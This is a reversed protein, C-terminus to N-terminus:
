DMDMHNDITVMNYFIRVDPTRVGNEDLLTDVEIKSVLMSVLSQKDEFTLENIRNKYEELIISVSNLYLEKNKIQELKSNSLAILKKLEIEEKNIDKLQSEVDQQNILNKRFLTLINNKESTKSILSKELASLESSCSDLDGENYKSKLEGIYAEKNNLIDIIDNWVVSEITDANLNISTCKINLVHKNDARKGACFYVSNKTKYSKGWFNKGCCKCKILGKLLFPRQTNNRVCKLTNEKKVAQAKEWLKDSVISPVERQILEKRRSGRKGYIHTGKYTSSSLIRLISSGRWKGTIGKTRKGKGSGCSSPINLSNLYIALSLSSVGGAAYLNFIQRVIAAEEEFIELYRDKNVIYGYPVIGGLWKGQKAARTAGIYMRDLINNRELEAMNLYNIFQFRGTSTNLDFPETVSLIEINYARLLEVAKLGSFTDRGFRDVKWVLVTDFLKSAADKLLEKGGGREQFDITGSVGNDLYTDILQLDDRIEIYTSLMDVQNEITDREKQDDSSVRCYIAVRKM